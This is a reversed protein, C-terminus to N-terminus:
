QAALEAPKHRDLAPQAYHEILQRPSVPSLPSPHSRSSSSSSPLLFRALRMDVLLTSPIGSRSLPPPTTMAWGEEEDKRSM